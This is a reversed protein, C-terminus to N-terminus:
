PLRQVRLRLVRQWVAENSFGSELGSVSYTTTAFYYTTGAVLNSVVGNTLVGLDVRNTYSGPSVGYYISYGAVGASLVSPDWALTVSQPPANSASVRFMAKNGTVTLSVNTATTNTTPTWTLLNTSTQVYYQTGPGLPGWSLLMRNQAPPLVFAAARWQGSAGLAALLLFNLIRM